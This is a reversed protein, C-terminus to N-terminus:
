FHHWSPPLGVKVTGCLIMLRWVAFPMRFSAPIALFSQNRIVGNARAVFDVLHPVYGERGDGGQAVVGVFSNKVVKAMMGTVIAANAMGEM